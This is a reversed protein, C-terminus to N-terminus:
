KFDNHRFVRDNLTCLFLVCGIFNGMWAGANKDTPAAFPDLYFTALKKGTANDKVIFLMVDEGWVQYDATEATGNSKDLTATEEVPPGSCTVLESPHIQEISIDFLEGALKFIGTFRSWFYNLTSTTCIYAVYCYLAHMCLALVSLM